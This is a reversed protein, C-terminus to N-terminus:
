GGQDEMGKRGSRRGDLSIMISRDIRNDAKRKQKIHVSM